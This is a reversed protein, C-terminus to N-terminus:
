IFLLSFEPRVFLHNCLLISSLVCLSFSIMSFFQSVVPAGCARFRLNAKEKVLQLVTLPQVEKAEFIRRNREKWLNWVTYMIVAAKTRRQDKPMNQLSQFWWDEINAMNTSARIAKISTQKQISIYHYQIRSLEKSADYLRNYSYNEPIYNGKLNRLQSKMSGTLAYKDQLRWCSCPFIKLDLLLIM